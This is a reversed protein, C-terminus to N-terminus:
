KLRVIGYCLLLRQCSVALDCHERVFARGARGLRIREEPAGLLELLAAALEGPSRRNVLLGTQSNMVLEPIAGVRTGVVPLEHSMAEAITFGFAEQFRSVACFIDAAAFAGSAFPDMDHGAWIVSSGLGLAEAQQEFAAKDPGDGVIVFKTQPFQQLVVPAAELLDGIGKPQIIHSIHLVAPADPPINWRGRFRARLLPLQQLDALPVSNGCTSVRGPELWGRGRIYDATFDSVGFVTDVPRLLLRAIISKWAPLEEPVSDEAISDHFTFFTKAGHLRALWPVPGVLSAFHIHVVAPHYESLLRFVSGPHSWWSEGFGPLVRITTNPASLLFERVESAPEGSFVLVSQWDAAALAISLQRAFREIGGIRLPLLGFLSAVTEM